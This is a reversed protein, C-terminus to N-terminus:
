FNLLWNLKAVFSEDDFYIFVIVQDTLSKIENEVNNIIISKEKIIKENM